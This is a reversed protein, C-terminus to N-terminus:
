AQARCRAGFTLFFNRTENVTAGILPKEGPLRRVAVIVVAPEWPRGRISPDYESADPPVYGSPYTWGPELRDGPLLHGARVERGDPRIFVHGLGVRVAQGDGNTLEILTAAAEIERVERMMRFGLAGTRFRTLVPTAKGILKVVEVPGDITEVLADPALRTLTPPPKPKADASM